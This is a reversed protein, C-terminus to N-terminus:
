KKSSAVLKGELVTGLGVCWGYKLTIKARRLVLRRQNPARVRESPTEVSVMASFGGTDAVAHLYSCAIDHTHVHSHQLGTM